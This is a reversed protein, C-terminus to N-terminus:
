GSAKITLALHRHSEAIASRIHTALSSTPHGSRRLHPKIHILLSAVDVASGLEFLVDTLSAAM